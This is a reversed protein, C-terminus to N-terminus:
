PLCTHLSEHALRTVLAFRGPLTPTSRAIARESWPRERRLVGIPAPLM